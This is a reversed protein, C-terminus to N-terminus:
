KIQYWLSGDSMIWLAVSSSISTQPTTTLDRYSSITRPTGTQNIIVYIRNTCSAASPLTITGTGTTYRWVMGTGDPNTTGAVLGSNFKAAVSGNIELTSNPTSTAVGLEKGVTLSDNITVENTGFDGYILPTGSSSNDIYLKNSGTENSGADTGMFINGSGTNLLGASSGIFINNSGTSGNGAYHGIAVNFNGAVNEGLTEFGLTTNYSGNANADMSYNGISINRIGSTNAGLSNQGLAINDGGGANSQLSFNGIGINYGGSLSASGLADQGLAINYFSNSSGDLAFSGIAIDNTGTTNNKGAQEGIFVNNNTTHDDNMGAKNGIFVSQGTNTFSLRGGNLEMQKTSLSDNITLKKVSFDGYVLPSSTSSNSIYLKNSGTEQNGAANGLFVNSSGTNMEGARSGLFVNSTGSTNMAGTEEGLSINDSANNQKLAFYGVAINKSGTTLGQMADYGIAINKAGSINNNLSGNGISTNKNGSINNTLANAGLGTNEAGTTNSLGSQYGFFSNANQNAPIDNLGADEGVFTGLGTNSFIIRGDHLKLNGIVELKETPNSLGIGVNGTNNTYINNGSLTWVSSSLMSPAVWSANGMANSQLVFGDQAGVTMQFYKSSLSDNITVKNKAFDGLILPSDTNSNDIILKNSTTDNQGSESGIFVNHHGNNYAGSEYGLFTNHDGNNLNGANTGVAINGTKGINNYLAASGVAVNSNGADNNFLAANGVAVNHSGTSNNQLSFTGFAANNIGSTTASLAYTGVASNEIGTLANSLSYAGLAVNNSTNVTNNLTQVGIGINNEGDVINLGANNGILINQNGSFDDQSGAGEGIIVSGGTNVFPLRGADIRVNGIIHLKDQPQDTNIGVNGLKLITMADSRHNQDYGNGITFLRDNGDFGIPDNPTYLNAYTGLVTEYGSVARNSYGAAFSYQGSAINEFGGIVSSYDGSAINRSGFALSFTGSARNNLGGAMSYIGISDPDWRHTYFEDSTEGNLGGARFAGLYPIWMMRTGAGSDQVIGQGIVGTALIGDNSVLHLGAKPVLTNIGVNQAWLSSTLISLTIAMIIRQIQGSMTHRKFNIPLHSM